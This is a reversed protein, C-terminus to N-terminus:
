VTPAPLKFVSVSNRLTDSYEVLNVTHSSQEELEQRTQDTNKLILQSRKILELARHAQHEAATAIEGVASVLNATTSETEQMREGAEQALKTGDAVQAIVRNMTNVTDATEMRIANVMSAIDSTAERSNEALRQVEDAVVAFGRGAEGASAAHMSANLALIHTREAITNILNVAGTIEQSREGLRKIRKETERIIERIQEIGNVTTSVADRANRTQSIAIDATDNAGKAIKALKAMTMGAQRLEDSSEQVLQREKAAVGTVKDGQSKVTNAAHEVLQSVQKIQNLVKATENTMLNVADSIPGTVDEAVEAKVTLDKQSLQAVVGMLSIISDNLQENEKEAKSEISVREDLLKDFATGLLGLEDGTQLYSRASFDGESVLQVTTHLTSLSQRLRLAIFLLLAAVTIGVVIIAGIFFATIRTRDANVNNINIANLYDKQKLLADLLPRLNNLATLIDDSRVEILTTGKAFANIARTYTALEANISEKLESSVNAKDLLQAFFKQEESLQRLYKADHKQIFNKEYRRMQLLSAILDHKGLRRLSDEIVHVAARLEGHLGKNENLGLLVRTDLLSDFADEYKQLSEKLQSVLLIVKDDPIIKELNSIQEEAQGVLTEFNEVHIINNTKLFSTEEARMESVKESIRNVSDGFKNTQDLLTISARDVNLVQNYTLGITIFGAILLGILILFQHTIRLNRILNM